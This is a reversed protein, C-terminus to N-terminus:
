CVEYGNRRGGAFRNVFKWPFSAGTECKTGINTLFKIQIPAGEFDKEVLV